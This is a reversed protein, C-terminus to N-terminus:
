MRQKLIRAIKNKDLGQEDVWVQLTKGDHEPSSLNKRPMKKVMLTGVKIANALMATRILSHGDCTIGSYYDHLKLRYDIEVTRIKKRFESKDDKVIIRCISSLEENLGAGAFPSACLLLGVVIAIFAKIIYHRFTVNHENSRYQKM